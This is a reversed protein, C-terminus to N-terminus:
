AKLVDNVTLRRKKSTRGNPVGPEAEVGVRRAAALMAQSEPQPEFQRTFPRPCARPGEIVFVAQTHAKHMDRLTIVKKGAEGANWVLQNLFKALYGILGGCGVYFRFGMEETDFRPVDFYRSMSEHFSALIAIFQQRSQESEWDFRPMVVPALFRGRLQENQRIVAQCRTLGAVVLGVNAEDVLVKLWDAVHHLVKFSSKDVFHQFEDICVVRTQTAAMLKILRTTKQYKTGVYNRPDGIELLMLEVLGMVTPEAPTSVQLVPVELGYDHRTTPHPLRFEELVTSKGTRSEGHISLCVPELSVQSRRFVQEVRKNAAVFAPHLVLTSEIATFVENGPKKGRAM